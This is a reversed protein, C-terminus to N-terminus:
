QYTDCQTCSGVKLLPIFIVLKAYKQLKTIKFSVYTHCRVHHVTAKIHVFSCRFYRPKQPCSTYIEHWVHYSAYFWELVSGCGAKMVEAADYLLDVVPDFTM